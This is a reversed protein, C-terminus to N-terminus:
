RASGPRSPANRCIDMASLGAAAPATLWYRYAVLFLTAEAEIAQTLLKCAGAQPVETLPDEQFDAPNRFAIVTNEKMAYGEKAEPL